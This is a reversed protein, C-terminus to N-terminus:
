VQAAAWCTPMQMGASTPVSGRELQWSMPVAPQPVSPNQSPAPAQSFYTTPTAQWLAPQVPDDSVKAPRQSPRPVQTVVGASDHAGNTQPAEPCHLVVQVVPASQMAPALQRFPLQPLCGTPALQEASVSQLEPKQACPVQQM